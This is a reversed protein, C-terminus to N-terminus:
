IVFLSFKFVTFEVYNKAKVKLNTKRLRLTDDNPAHAFYRFAVILKMDIRGHPTVRGGCSPNEHSKTTNKSFRHLIKLNWEFRVLIVRYKGHFWVHKGHLGMYKGHLGWTSGMFGCTSGMSGWTSEMFGWASGMFGWKSGVFDWTSGMFGGHVEWSAGMHKGHLGIHKGHLGMYKGHLGM